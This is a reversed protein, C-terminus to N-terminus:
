SHTSLYQKFVEEAAKLNKILTSYVDYESEAEALSNKALAVFTQGNVPQTLVNRNRDEFWVSGNYKIVIIEHENDELRTSIGYGNESEDGHLMHQFIIRALYSSDGVRGSELGHIASSLVTEGSWHAYLYIRGGDRNQIIINSRDGM